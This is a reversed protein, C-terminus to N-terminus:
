WPAPDRGMWGALRDYAPAHADVPVDGFPARDRPAEPIRATVLELAIKGPGEALLDLRGLAAALDWGHTTFEGIYTAFAADLPVTGFPLSAVTTPDAADVASALVAHAATWSAQPGDGPASGQSSPAIAPKTATAMALRDAIVVLHHILAAIDYEECPTPRDLAEPTVAGMLRDIQDLAYKLHTANETM